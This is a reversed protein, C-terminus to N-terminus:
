GFALVKDGEVRTVTGTGAASVDGRILEVAISGGDEFRSPGAGNGRGAGGAQLPVVHFPELAHTLEAFAAAGFGALSLPVSARVLRPEGGEPLPPLPLRALMPARAALRDNGERRSAIVDDLSRRGDAARPQNRPENAAEAVPTSLRGRLPRKLEAMMTEIPTVGAIPDKAFHWGYSLAGALRGEIYIPSGSMGAVIGSHILRPDDSQVLIIDQKPLFNHLVSIVRIDFREPKLGQFVTLGYGKMGARIESIPMISVHKPPAITVPATASAGAASASVASASAASAASAGAGGSSSAGSPEAAAPSALAAAAVLLLPLLRATPRLLM